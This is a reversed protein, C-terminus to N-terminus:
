NPPLVFLGAQCGREDVEECARFELDRTLCLRVEALLDEKCSVAIGDPHLGPNVAIFAAEVTDASVGGDPAPPDIEAPIVIRRFAARIAAFYDEASLGTCTGHKEWQHAVLSSDPMIDLMSQVLDASLEEAEDCFEPYGREYQPWLGHAIFGHGAGERCQESGAMSGEMACYAPSWSLSLVYFDFDGPQGEAHAPTALIEALAAIFFLATRLKM